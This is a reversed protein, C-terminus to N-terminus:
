KAQLKLFVKLSSARDNTSNGAGDRGFKVKVEQSNSIESGAKIPNNPDCSVGAVGGILDGVYDAHDYLIFDAGVNLKRTDSTTGGVAVYINAWSIKDNLNYKSLNPIQHVLLEKISNRRPAIQRYDYKKRIILNPTPFKILTPSGLFTDYHNAFQAEVYLYLPTVDGNNDPTSGPRSNDGRGASVRTSRLLSANKNYEEFNDYFTFISDDEIVLHREENQMIKDYVRKVNEDQIIITDSNNFCKSSYFENEYSFEIIDNMEYNPAKQIEVLPLSSEEQSCSSLFLLFLGLFTTKKM